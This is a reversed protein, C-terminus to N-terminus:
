FAPVIEGGAPTAIADLVGQRVDNSILRVAGDGMLFHTGNQSAPGSFTDPGIALGSAPDRKLM